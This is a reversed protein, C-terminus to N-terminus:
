AAKAEAAEQRKVLKQTDEDISDLLGQLKARTEESLSGFAPDNRISQAADFLQPASKKAVKFVLESPASMFRKTVKTKGVAEARGLGEELVNQANNGHKALAQIAMSASVKGSAVMERVSKPAAILSLLDRVYNTTIGLRQAVTAENWNFLTLRKCVAAKELPELPKGSNSVWLSLTLEEMDRTQSGVVVPVAVIEAGEKMALDLAQLRCHGDYVYILSDDGDRAVYGSLPHEVKFGDRKMSDALYRIHEQHAANEVRVNFGDIIRIRDRPVLWLDRSGASAAKMAGKISGAVLTIEPNQENLGTIFNDM